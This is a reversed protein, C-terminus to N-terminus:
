IKVQIKWWYLIWRDIVYIAMGLSVTALLFIMIQWNSKDKVFYNLLPLHVLFIAFSINSLFIIQKEFIPLRIKGMNVNLIKTKMIWIGLSFEFIRCLVFWDIPRYEGHWYKGVLWRSGFSVLFLIFLWINKRRSMLSSLFPFIFYLAVILGIFWSVPNIFGEWKHGSYVQLGTANWLIMKFNLKISNDFLGILIALGLSLWYVPYIRRLRGLIYKKLDIKKNGYSLELAMGSLILFITVGAGGISVYYFDPWGFFRGWENGLKQGLHGIVVMGIAVLRLIDLLIVRKKNM